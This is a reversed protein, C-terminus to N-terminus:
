PQPIHLHGMKQNQQRYQRHSNKTAYTKETKNHPPHPFEQKESHRPNKAIRNRRKDTTLPLSTMRNTLYRYAAMKHESPHNSTYNITTDTTTPKRYIDTEIKDPQRILLLDLFCLSNNNEHSPTFHLNPHTKNIHQHITEPTTYKTNHIMLIDGVYRTYFVIEKSELIHKLHTSELYQLFIEAVTNSIPSEMSVGKQPQYTNQFSFYNQQLVSELLMLIQTTIQEENHESLLQKTIELTETIPINVYLDKIDFTIMRHHENIKLKTLDNALSVSDKVNYHYKLHLHEHLKNVLFKAIKYTPTNTKNIVPRIPNDPKRIKILANLSPPLPKRQILHRLQKTPIIL